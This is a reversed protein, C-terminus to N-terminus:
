DFDSTMTGSSELVLVRLSGEKVLLHHAASLGSIGAGVIIVDYEPLASM